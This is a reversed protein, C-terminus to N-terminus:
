DLRLLYICELDKWYVVPKDFLSFCWEAEEEDFHFYRLRTKKLALILFFTAPLGLSLFTVFDSFDYEPFSRWLLLADAVSTIIGATAFL